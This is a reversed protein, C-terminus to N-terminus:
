ANEGLEEVVKQLSEMDNVSYIGAGKVTRKVFGSLAKGPGCEIFTDVGDRAMNSLTEEWKVSSKVQDSINGIIEEKDDPYPEATKNAYIPIMAPRLRYEGNKELEDRLSKAAGDMYPTHFAGGVALEVYRVELQSLKEKFREIKEKKGSVVIQGPCNYNVPYVGYEKCIDALENKDMRMVAIMSGDVEGSSKQMYEGRRCVLRFAEQRGLIGSATLAAIEGLSFGAVADPRIGNEMLAVAGALDALFLCPQTNETKKLEEQSGTFLQSLTGPRIQEATNYLDQVEPINEFLDRTMGPYQSGQGAFLFAVKGM